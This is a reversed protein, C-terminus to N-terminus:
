RMKRLQTLVLGLFIVPVLLNAFQWVGMGLMVAQNVAVVGAYMYVAWRRMKWIGAVCVTSAIISLAIFPPYWAGVQAAFDSFILPVGMVAGSFGILCLVTLLKPREQSQEPTVPSAPQAPAQEPEGPLAPQAPNNEETM